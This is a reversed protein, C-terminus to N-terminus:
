FPLDDNDSFDDVTDPVKFEGAGNDVASVAPSQRPLGNVDSVKNSYLEIVERLFSDQKIYFIQIDEQSMEGWPKGPEPLGQSKKLDEDWFYSQIKKGEQIISLGIIRKDDKSVFDFANFTAEKELDISPFKKAFSNGYGSKLPFYLTATDVGDTFVIKINEGYDGSLLKVEQLKGTIDKHEIGYKAEGEKTYKYIFTGAEEGKECPQIIKSKHIFLVMGQIEKKDVKKSLAM